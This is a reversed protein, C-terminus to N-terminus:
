SYEVWLAYIFAELALAVGLRSSSTSGAFLTSGIRGFEESFFHCFHHFLFSSFLSIEIKM